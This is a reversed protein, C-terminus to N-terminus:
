IPNNRANDFSAKIEQETMGLELLHKRMDEETMTVSTQKIGGANFDAGVILFEEPESGSLIGVQYQKAM